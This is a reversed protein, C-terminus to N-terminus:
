RRACAVDSGRGNAACWAAGWEIANPRSRGVTWRRCRPRRASSPPLQALARDETVIWQSEFRPRDQKADQEPLTVPAPPEPVAEASVSVEGKGALEVVRQRVFCAEQSALLVPGTWSLEQLARLLDVRGVRGVPLRTRPATM